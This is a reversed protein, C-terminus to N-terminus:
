SLMHELVDRLAGKKTRASSPRDDDSCRMPCDFGGINATMGFNLTEESDARGPGSFQAAFRNWHVEETNWAHTESDKSSIPATDVHM